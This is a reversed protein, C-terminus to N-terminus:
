IFYAASDLYEIIQPNHLKQKVVWYSKTPANYIYYTARVYKNSKNMYIIFVLQM